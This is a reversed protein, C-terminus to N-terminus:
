PYYHKDNPPLNWLWPVVRLGRFGEVRVYHELERCAEVPRLLDVAAIGIFRGPDARVFEAVEANSFVVRGPRTWACLAARDVGAAAMLASVESPTRRQSLLAADAGSRQFLRAAEPVGDTLPIAPNVWADIVPARRRRSPQNGDVEERAVARPRNPM